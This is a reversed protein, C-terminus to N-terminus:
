ESAFEKLDLLPNVVYLREGLMIRSASELTLAKRVRPASGAKISRGMRTWRRFRGTRQSSAATMTTKPRPGCLIASADEIEESTEVTSSL